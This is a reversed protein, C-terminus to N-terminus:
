FDPVVEGGGRTGLARFVDPNIADAITRVSGDAFLVNVCSSHYSRLFHVTVDADEPECPARPHDICYAGKDGEPTNPTRLTSFLTGGHLADLYRGRTDAHDAADPVVILEGGMLTFSTGDLVDTLRTRSLAFFLGDRKRGTPDNPPNLVTSGLCLAYNGHFGESIPTGGFGYTKPGAPDSPCLFLPVPTSAHPAYWPYHGAQREFEFERALADQEVFPLIIPMWSRRECDPGQHPLQGMFTNLLGPPFVRHTDHYNHLALGIQRLNSACEVRNAAERIKQVAPLLLGILVAIIAIVVLLEVLTFASRVIESRRIAVKGTDLLSKRGTQRAM